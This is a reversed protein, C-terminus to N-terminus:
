QTIGMQAMTAEPSTQEMVQIRKTEAVGSGILALAIIIALAVREYIIRASDRRSRPTIITVHRRPHYFNEAM